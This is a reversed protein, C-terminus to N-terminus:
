FEILRFPDYYLMPLWGQEARLPVWAWIQEPLELARNQLVTLDGNCHAACPFPWLTDPSDSCLPSSLVSLVSTFRCLLTLASVACPAARCRGPSPEQVLGSILCKEGRLQFLSQWSSQRNRKCMGVCGWWLSSWSPFMHEASEVALQFHLSQFIEFILMQQGFVRHSHLSLMKLLFMACLKSFCIQPLYWVCLYQCRPLSYDEGPCCRLASVTGWLRSCCHLVPM